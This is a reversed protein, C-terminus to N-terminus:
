DACVNIVQEEAIDGAPDLHETERRLPHLLVHLLEHVATVEIEERGEDDPYDDPHLIAIKARLHNENVYCRGWAITGDDSLMERWRACLRALDGETPCKGM